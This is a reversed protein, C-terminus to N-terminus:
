VGDWPGCERGAQNLISALQDIAPFASALDSALPRLHREEFNLSNADNWYTRTDSWAQRLTEFADRLQGAGTNLDAIKM